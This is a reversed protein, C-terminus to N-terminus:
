YYFNFSFYYRVRLFLLFLLLEAFHCCFWIGYIGYCLCGHLGTDTCLNFFVLYCSFLVFSVTPRSGFVFFFFFNNFLFPFSPILQNALGISM